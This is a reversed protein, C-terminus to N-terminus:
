QEQPCERKRPSVTMTCIQEVLKTLATILCMYHHNDSEYAIQVICTPPRKWLLILHTKCYFVRQLDDIFGVMPKWEIFSAIPLSCGLGVTEASHVHSVTPVYYLLKVCTFCLSSIPYSKLQCSPIAHFIDLHFIKTYQYVWKSKNWRYSSHLMSTVYHCIIVM